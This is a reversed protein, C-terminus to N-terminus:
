RGSTETIFNIGFNLKRILKYRLSTSNEYLNIVFVLQKLYDLVTFRAFKPTRTVNLLVITINIRQFQVLNIISQEFDM